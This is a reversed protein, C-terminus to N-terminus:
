ENFVLVCLCHRTLAAAAFFSELEIKIDASTGCQVSMM